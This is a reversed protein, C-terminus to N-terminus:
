LFRGRPLMEDSSNWIPMFLDDLQDVILMDINLITARYANLLDAPMASYGSTTSDNSANTTAANSSNEGSNSDLQEDATQESTTSATLDNANSAYDEDGSLMTQPTDSHVGRSGSSVTNATTGHNTSSNTGTRNGTTNAAGDSTTVTHMDVTKFPDFQLQASAYLQNMPPMIENMRRRMVFEFEEQTERGIEQFWFHDLIKKNLADRDFGTNIPYLDLGFWQSQTFDAWFQFREADLEALTMTFTGM